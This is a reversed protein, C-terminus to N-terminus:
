AIPVYLLATQIEEQSVDLEEAITELSKGKQLKKNILEFLMAQKGNVIGEALGEAKGEALGQERGAALGQEKWYENMTRKYKEKEEAENYEYISMKIAEAKNRILFEALIGNQICEDVAQAVANELPEGMLLYQRICQIYQAYEKLTQCGQLLERNYKPNINLVTVRLELQPNSERTQYLDSLRLEEMEPRQELGNYFVFFHPAPIRIPAQAYISRHVVMKQYEDAVYFLDRLPMNPNYTSQHEYLYLRTDIVFALDNKMNMYIANELTVIQLLEPQTHSTHALANYLSLLKMKDHFLMSFLTSKYERNVRGAKRRQHRPRRKTNPKTRM